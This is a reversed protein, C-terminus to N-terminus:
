SDRPSPSTYLLCNWFSAFEPNANMLDTQSGMRNIPAGYINKWFFDGSRGREIFDKLHFRMSGVIEDSVKDYDYIQMVIRDAAM